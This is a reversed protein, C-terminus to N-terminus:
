YLAVAVSHRNNIALTWDSLADLLNLTTSRGSLFGYQEKSILCHKYLYCLMRRIIVKEMIKCTVCTLSIPRYNSVDAALGGKYIPTVVARRWEDPIRGVSMFSDFMLALPESICQALSKYLLPPLGDPGCSGNM